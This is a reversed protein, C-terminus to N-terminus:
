SISQLNIGQDKLGCNFIDFLEERKQFYCDMQNEFLDFLPSQFVSEVVVNHLESSTVQPLQMTSVLESTRYDHTIWLSPVGSQFSAMNGHLRLGLSLDFKSVEYFWEDTDFFIKYRMAIDEILDLIEGEPNLRSGLYLLDKALSSFERSSFNPRILDILPRHSQLLYISNKFKRFIKYLDMETQITEDNWYRDGTIVFSLHELPLLRSKILGESLKEKLLYNESIFNSPCGIVKIRSQEFGMSLLINETSKGRVFIIPAYKKFHDLVRQSNPLIRAIDIEQFSGSIGLGIPIVPVESWQLRHWLETLEYDTNIFDACPVVVFDSNKMTVISEEDLQLDPFSVVREGGQFLKEIAFQFIFNGTNGGCYKLLDNNSMCLDPYKTGTGLIAINM